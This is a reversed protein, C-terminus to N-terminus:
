KYLLEDQDLNKLMMGTAKEVVWWQGEERPNPVLALDKDEYQDSLNNSKIYNGVTAKSADDIHAPINVHVGKDVPFGNIVVINRQLQKAAADLAADKTLGNRMYRSTLQKLVPAYRATGITAQRDNWPNWDSVKETLAETLKSDIDKQTVTPISGIKGTTKNYNLSAVSRIAEEPSQNMYRMAVDVDDFFDRMQANKTYAVVQSPHDKALKLYTNVAKLTTEPIPADANTAISAAQFGTELENKLAEVPINTQASLLFKRNLKENDDILGDADIQSAKTNVFKQRLKKDTQSVGTIPKTFNGETLNQEIQYLNANEKDAKEQAKLISSLEDKTGYGKSSFRSNIATMDETTLLGQTAKDKWTTKEQAALALAETKSLGDAMRILSQSRNYADPDKDNTALAGVAPSREHTLISKATDFDKNKIADEAVDLVLSNLQKPSAGHAKAFDVQGAFAAPIGKYKVEDRFWSRFNDDRAQINKQTLEQSFGRLASLKIDQWRDAFGGNVHPNAQKLPEYKDMAANAAWWKDAQELNTINPKEQEWKQSVDLAHRAALKTGYVKDDAAKARAAEDAKLQESQVYSGLKNVGSAMLGSLELLSNSRPARQGYVFTQVRNAEPQLAVGNINDVRQRDM